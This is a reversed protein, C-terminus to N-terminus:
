IRRPARPPSTRRFRRQGALCGAPERGSLTPCEPDCFLFVSGHWHRLRAGSTFSLDRPRGGFLRRVGEPHCFFLHRRASPIVSFELEPSPPPLAPSFARPRSSSRRSAREPITM